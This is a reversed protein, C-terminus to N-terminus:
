LSSTPLTPTTARCQWAATAPHCSPRARITGDRLRRPAFSPASASSEASTLSGQRTEAGLGGFQPCQREHRAGTWRALLRSQFALGCLRNLVVSTRPTEGTKPWELWQKGGTEARSRKVDARGGRDFHPSCSSPTSSLRANPRLKFKARSGALRSLQSGWGQFMPPRPGTRRSRRQGRHRCVHYSQVRLSVPPRRARTVAM